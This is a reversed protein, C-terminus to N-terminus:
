NACAEKASNIAAWTAESAGGLEAVIKPQVEPAVARWAAMQEENPRIVNIGAGEIKKLLGGEANRVAERLGVFVSGAENMWGQEEESLSDWVKKSVVVAGIQHVHNSVTVNPAVEHYGVAIGYVTPWTAASVNGTKLAPMSDTTGLPVASGGAGEMFLTDTKTPATRIKVGALDAPSAIPEKSFIIQQGIEAFAIPVVGAADMADGFTNLLHDDAVCDAQKVDTFAYPSALLGFEPVLLSTATNSFFGMDLRGRAVQRVTTQEDGLQSAHFHKITLTGGSLEAVKDVFANTVQGWPSPEPAAGASRLERAQLFPSAALVAATLTLTVIKKM